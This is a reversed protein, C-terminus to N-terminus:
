KIHTNCGKAAPLPGEPTFDQTFCVFVRYAYIVHGTFGCLQGTFHRCLVAAQRSSTLPKFFGFLICLCDRAMPLGSRYWATVFTSPFKSLPLCNRGNFAQFVRLVGAVSPGSSIHPLPHPSLSLLTPFFHPWLPLTFPLVPLPPCTASLVWLDGRM